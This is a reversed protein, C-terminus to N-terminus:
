RKLQMKLVRDIRKGFPPRLLGGIDFFKSQTFVSKAHSFHEFGERGHYSGSGSEGIGGFPLDDQLFHTMVDNIVLGGCAVEHTVQEIERGDTGFYYLALPRPRARVRQLADQMSEVEVIPLLPGFIEEEMLSGEQKTMVVASPAVCRPDASKEAGFLPIVRNGRAEADSLHARLRAAHRESIINVYDNAGVGEPYMTKAAARLHTVFADTYRANIFVYDPAICIQGANTLKAFAVRSAVQSLSATESVLVPSKGGLELTVPVLNAAASQAVLRGVNTSGTFLIHDFQLKCFEAAVDGGGTVVNVENVEFIREVLERLTESTAPTLESPKLMVRNGAALLGGMPSLSLTLPFNWPSLNGVVGLPVYNVESKAGILNYPFNSRRRKPRMWMSLNERAYKLANLPPLIDFIRTNTASRRGYDHEVAKCLEHQHALLLQILREIRDRRLSESPYPDQRSAARQVSFVRRMEVLATEHLDAARSLVAVSNM